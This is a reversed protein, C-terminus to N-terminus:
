NGLLLNVASKARTILSQKPPPSGLEGGRLVNYINCDDVAVKQYVEADELTNGFAAQIANNPFISKLYFLHILKLKTFNRGLYARFVARLDVPCTLIPGSPVGIGKLFKRRSETSDFPRVTVYIFVCGEKELKQYRSIIGPYIGDSLGVWHRIEHKTITGDIDSIVFKTDQPFYWIRVFLTIDKHLDKRSTVRRLSMKIKMVNEGTKLKFMNLQDSTPCITGDATPPLLHYSRGALGITQLVDSGPVGAAQMVEDAEKEAKEEITEKKKRAKQVEAESTQFSSFYLQYRKRRVDTCKIMETPLSQENVTFSEINHMNAKTELVMYFPTSALKENEVDTVIVDTANV